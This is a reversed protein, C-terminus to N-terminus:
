TARRKPQAALEPHGQPVVSLVVRADEKLYSVAAAQVDTAAADISKLADRRVQEPSHAASQTAGGATPRPAPRDGGLYPWLFVLGVALVALAVFTVQPWGSGSHNDSAM